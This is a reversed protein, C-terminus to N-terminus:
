VEVYVLSGGVAVAGSLSLNLLANSGTEFWGVPNFPLVYGGNAALYALGTLDTGGAATQWKANVAASAVLQVALVRLKKDAVAAVVTNNGNSAAAIAAFKPTLATAGSYISATDQGASIKGILNTGAPIASALDVNGINNDGAAISAVDVDGIDVGSNATLKGIGATGAALVVAGTNCATIKGDISTIGANTVALTGDVTLSGGNDTVPFTGQAQVPLGSTTSVLTASDVGGHALKNIQYHVGTVDDTAIIAGGSAANLELNDSV